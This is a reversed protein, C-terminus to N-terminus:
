NRPPRRGIVSKYIGRPGAVASRALDDSPGDARVDRIWSAAALYIVGVMLSFPVLKHIAFTLSYLGIAILLAMLGLVSLDGTRRWMRALTLTLAAYFLGTAVLGVAGNYVLLYIPFNHIHTQQQDAGTTFPKGAGIGFLWAIPGGALYTKLAPRWENDWRGGDIHQEGSSALVIRRQIAQKLAHQQALTLNYRAAQEALMLDIARDISTANPNKTWWKALQSASLDRVETQALFGVLREVAENLITERAALDKAARFLEPSGGSTELQLRFLSMQPLPALPPIALAITTALVPIALMRAVKPWPSISNGDPRRHALVIEIAIVCMGVAISLLHTRTLTTLAAVIGLAALLGAGLQRWWPGDNVVAISALLPTALFMPITTRPDILTIRNIMIDFPEFAINVSIYLYILYSCQAAGAACLIWAVSRASIPQLLAWPALCALPVVYPLVSRMASLLPVDSWLGITLAIVFSGVYALLAWDLLGAIFWRKKQVSYRYAGVAGLLGLAAVFTIEVLGFAAFTPHAATSLLVSAALLIIM